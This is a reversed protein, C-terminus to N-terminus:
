YSLKVIKVTVEKESVDAYIKIDHETNNKFKLDLYDYAVTADNGKKVYGVEKEHEHRETVKLGDVKKVVDYLTTSIQCNGGGYGKKKKGDVFIGAKEYGKDPTPNGVVDNFSFTEGKKVIHHNIKSASLELNHDRNDDEVLIKTSSNALETETPEKQNEKEEQQEVNNTSHNNEINTQTSLREAEPPPTNQNNNSFLFFYIAAIIAIIGILILIWKSYKQMM